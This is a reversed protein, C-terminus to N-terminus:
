LVSINKDTLDESTAICKHDKIAQLHGTLGCDACEHQQVENREIHKAYCAELKDKDEFLFLEGCTACQFQWMTDALIMRHQHEGQAFYIGGACVECRADAIYNVDNGCTEYDMPFNSYHVLPDDFNLVPHSFGPVARGLYEFPHNGNWRVALWALAADDSAFFTTKTSNTRHNKFVYPISKDYM